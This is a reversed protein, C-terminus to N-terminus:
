PRTLGLLQELRAADAAARERALADRAEGAALEEQAWACVAAVQWPHLRASWRVWTLAAAQPHRADYTIERTTGDTVLVLLGARGARVPRPAGRPVLRAPEGTRLVVKAGIDPPEGM